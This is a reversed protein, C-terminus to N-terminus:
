IFTELKFDAVFTKRLIDWRNYKLLPVGDDYLETWKLYKHILNMLVKLSMQFFLTIHQECMHLPLQVIDM